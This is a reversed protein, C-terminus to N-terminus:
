HGLKCAHGCKFRRLACFVLVHHNVHPRLMRRGMAHQAQHQLNVALDNDADVRLDAVQM